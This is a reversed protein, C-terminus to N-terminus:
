EGAALARISKVAPLNKFEASCSDVLEVIKSFRRRLGVLEGHVGEDSKHRAHLERAAEVEHHAEALSKRAMDRESKAAGLAHVAGDREKRTAELQALARRHDREDVYGAPAPIAPSADAQSVTEKIVRNRFELVAPEAIDEVPTERLLKRWRANVEFEASVQLQLPDKNSRRLAVEIFDSTAVDSPKGHKTALAEYGDLMDKFSEARQQQEDLAKKADGLRAMLDPNVGTRETRQLDARAEDRESVLRTERTTQENARNAAVELQRLLEGREAVLEAIQESSAAVELRLRALDEGHLITELQGITPLRKPPADMLRQIEHELYWASKQLDEIPTGKLGHRAIYKVANALAFSLGWAEVVTIVEYPGPHYHKPHHVNDSM